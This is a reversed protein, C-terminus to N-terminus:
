ISFDKEFIKEGYSGSFRLRISVPGIVKHYRCTGSSCTGLIIKRGNSDGEGCEWRTKILYCRGFSGELGTGGGAESSATSYSMEFEVLQTGAPPNNIVLKVEGTKIPELTVKVSTDVTPIVTETPLPEQKVETRKNMQRLWWFFILLIVIVFVAGILLLRKQKNGM